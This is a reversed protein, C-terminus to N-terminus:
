SQTPGHGHPTIRTWSGWVIGIGIALVALPWIMDWNLEALRMGFVNVLTYYVGVGIVILGILIAGIDVNRLRDM